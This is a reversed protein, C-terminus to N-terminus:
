NIFIKLDWGWIFFRLINKGFHEFPVGQGERVIDSM